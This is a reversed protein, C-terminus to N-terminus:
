ELLLLKKTEIYNGVKLAYLYVGSSLNSGNFVVKYTGSSQQENVLLTIERGLIDYIALQVKNQVDIKE